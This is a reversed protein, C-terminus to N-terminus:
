AEPEEDPEHESRLDRILRDLAEKYSAPDNWNRFDGVHKAIVDAKRPHDWKELIYDDLRIPFLVEADRRQRKLDDEKQVAREIERLVAPANLSKESCIVILKDYVRVAKDIEGMLTRGWRADEKWRWCRVGAAQLDNYLRVSFDDDAETFSIFCTYFQIPKQMLSPLYQILIEPVGCGRLFVEPIKGKSKFLTDVGVTSPLTCLVTELGKTESLDVNAFVTAGCIAESFVAGSLRAMTLVAGFLNAGHLDAGILSAWSLNAWNLNAGSLDATSLYAGSLHAGVLVAGRLDAGILKAETLDARSLDAEHLDAGNLNAGSLDAGGLLVGMLNAEILDAGSLDATNLDAAILNAGSLNARRLDAGRLNAECLYPGRQDAGMLNAEILDAKSLDARSLDAEHLDAGNLDAGHLDAGTLDLRADPNKERWTRIAEAGQKVIAVHEPNAM